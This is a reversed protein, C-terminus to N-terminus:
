TGGDRRRLRLDAGQQHRADGRCLASLKRGAAGAPLSAAGLRHVALARRGARGAPITEFLDSGTCAFIALGQGANHDQNELYEQIRKVDKDFSEREPSEEPLAKARENFVKKVFQEYGERGNQDPTLSLYLSIVPFPSPELAALVEM